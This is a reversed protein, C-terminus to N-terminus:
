SEGGSVTVMTGRDAGLQHAANGERVAIELLGWSNIIALPCHLVGDAYASVMPIDRVNDMSVSLRQTAFSGLDTEAINTILNGFHDVYLVEGRVHDASRRPAPLDLPHLTALPSGLQDPKVGLALHAAAPAFIDRGHFTCSVTARIFAANEIRWVGRAGGQAAIAPALVGNDPGVFLASGTAAVVPPRSSGVGPDVVVVHISSSPFFPVASRLILAGGRIDQAAVDHSLDVITAEPVLGLIIGKMIGVYADGHGFDTLLTIVPKM